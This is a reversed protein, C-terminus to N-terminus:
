ERDYTMSDTSIYVVSDTLCPWYLMLDITAYSANRILSCQWQERSNAWRPVLKKAWMATSRVNYICGWPTAHETTKDSNHARCFRSFRDFHHKPHPSPHAWPLMHWIPPHVIAGGQSYSQVARIVKVVQKIHEVVLWLSIHLTHQNHWAVPPSALLLAVALFNVV